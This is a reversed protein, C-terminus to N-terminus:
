RLEAALFDAMMPRVLHAVDHNCHPSGEILQLRCSAGIEHALAQAHDPPTLTDLEGHVILTPCCIRSAANSLDIFAVCQAAEKVDTSGTIMRFGAQTQGPLNAFDRLHYMAGWVVLAQVRPDDAVARPALFGGLSRGIVGIRNSDIEALGTLVDVAASVGRYANEDLPFGRLFAEGQGPGDFAMVAMGRALCLELFEHADEKHADLGGVYVVCPHPQAGGTPLRLIAPLAGTGFPIDLTRAPPDLLPAARSYTVIKRRLGAMRERSNHFHLYQAVHATLMALLWLHAQTPRSHGPQGVHAEFWKSREMWYPWWSDWGDLARLARRIESVPLGDAAHREANAHLFDGVTTGGYGQTTAM